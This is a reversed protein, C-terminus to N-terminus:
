EEDADYNAHTVRHKNEPKMLEENIPADTFEHMRLRITRIFNSIVTRSLGTKKVLKDILGDYPRDDKGVLEKLATIIKLHNVNFKCLDSAEEIFRDFKYNNPSRKLDLHDKYAGGNRKDRSEKKIHALMVTKAVQSWMNFVKTHGPRHDFKYLSSEIQCWAIQYLEGFASGEKGTGLMHLNHTRIIQRILESANAMIRNRLIIDTCGGKVYETLLSEVYLNDFYHNKPLNPNVPREVDEFKIPDVDFRQKKGKTNKTHKKIVEVPPKEAAKKDKSEGM